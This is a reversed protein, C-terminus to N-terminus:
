DKPLQWLRIKPPNNYRQEIYQFFWKPIEGGVSAVPCVPDISIKQGDPLKLLNWERPDPWKWILDKDKTFILFSRYPSHTVTYDRDLFHLHSKALDFLRILDEPYVDIPVEISILSFPNKELYTKLVSFWKEPMRLIEKNMKITLSYTTKDVLYLLSKISESNELNIMYTLGGLSSFERRKKDLGIPIELPSIEEGMYNEYEIFAKRIEGANLDPTETVLYPPYPMAKLALDKAKQHLETSPILYLPYLMLYDYAENKLIWKISRLIDSLHDGPLGAILDVMVEIGSSQLLRIGELFRMPNFRRHILKLTDKKISQLGVELEVFGAKQMLKAVMPDIEEVECEAHIKLKKNSNIKKIEELFSKLYPHRNFCPDLFVIENFDQDWAKKIEKYIRELPFIRLYNYNKHYYCYACRNRCGRVSELWLIGKLSLDLSGSLFPSPLEELDVLHSNVGTFFWEKNRKRVLLGKIEPINPYSQLIAKWIWEGEGVVGIDFDDHKLLFGNEPTIEPGGLIITCKPLYKKIERALFLSREINWLYCSLGIIDPNFDVLFKLISQDSGYSMLYNPLLQAEFGLQSAIAKLYSPALPINENSFFFDHGQIPLQILIIKM